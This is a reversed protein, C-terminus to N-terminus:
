DAADEDLETEELTAVFGLDDESILGAHEGPEELEDDFDDRAPELKVSVPNGHRSFELEPPTFDGPIKAKHSIVEAIIKAKPNDMLARALTEGLAAALYPELRAKRFSITKLYEEGIEWAEGGKVGLHAALGAIVGNVKLSRKREQFAGDTAAVFDGIMTAVLLRHLRELDPKPLNLLANLTELCRSADHRGTVSFELGRTPSFGVHPLRAAFAELEALITKSALADTEGLYKVSFRIEHEGLFGLVALALPLKADSNELIAQQLAATRLRRILTIGAESHETKPQELKTSIGTSPDTTFGDSSTAGNVTQSSVGNTGTAPQNPVIGEVIDVAWDQRIHVVAGAGEADRAARNFESWWTWVGSRLEVFAFGRAKLAELQREAWATQLREIVERSRLRTGEASNWLDTELLGGAAEYEELSFRANALKFDEAQMAQRVFEASLKWPAGQASELYARQAELALNVYQGPNPASAIPQLVLGSTQGPLVPYVGDWWLALPITKVILQLVQQWYQPYYTTMAHELGRRYAEGVRDWFTFADMLSCFTPIYLLFDPNLGDCFDDAPVNRILEHDWAGFFLDLNTQGITCNILKAAQGGLETQIRWFARANFRNWAESLGRELTKATGEPMFPASWEFQPCNQYDQGRCIELNRDHVVEVFGTPLRRPDGRAIVEPRADPEIYSLRGVVPGTTGGRNVQAFGSPSLLSSAVLAVVALWRV